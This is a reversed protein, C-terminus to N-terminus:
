DKTIALHGKLDISHGVILRKWSKINEIKYYASEGDPIVGLDYPGPTVLVADSFTGGEELTKAGTTGIFVSMLMLTVLVISFSKKLKGSLKFEPSHINRVIDYIKGYITTIM